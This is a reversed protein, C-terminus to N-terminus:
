ARLPLRDPADSPSPVSSLTNPTMSWAMIARYILSEIRDNHSRSAWRELLEDVTHVQEILHGEADCLLRFGGRPIEGWALVPLGWIEVLALEEFDDPHLAIATVRDGCSEAHEHISDRVGLSSEFVDHSQARPWLKRIILAV